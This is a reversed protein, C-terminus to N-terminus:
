LFRMEDQRCVTQKIGCGFLCFPFGLDAGGAFTDTWCIGVLSRTVTHPYTIYEIIEICLVGGCAFAMECTQRRQIGSGVGLLQCLKFLVPHVGHFIEPIILNDIAFIEHVIQKGRALAHKALTRLAGHKIHVEPRVRKDGRGVGDTGACAGTQTYRGVLNAIHETNELGVTRAHSGSREGGLQEVFGTLQYTIEAM